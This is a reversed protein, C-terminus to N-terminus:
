SPVLSAHAAPAAKVGAAAQVFANVLPHAVGTLAQREPQYLTAMFFPHGALEVVRVEGEDD